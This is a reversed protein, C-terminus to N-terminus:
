AADELNEFPVLTKDSKEGCSHCPGTCYKSTDKPWDKGGDEACQKCIGLMAHLQSTVDEVAEDLAKLGGSFDERQRRDAEAIARKFGDEGKHGIQSVRTSHTAGNKYVAFGGNEACVWFNGAEYLITTM